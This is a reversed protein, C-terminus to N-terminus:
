ESIASLSILRDVAPQYEVGLVEISGIGDAVNSIQNLILGSESASLIKAEEPLSSKVLSEIVAGDLVSWLVVMMLAPILAALGVMSAYYSPLAALNRVGGVPKAIRISQTYGFFYAVATGLLVIVILTSLNM